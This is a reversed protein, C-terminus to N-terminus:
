KTETKILLNALNLIQVSEDFGENLELLGVILRLNRRNREKVEQENKTM